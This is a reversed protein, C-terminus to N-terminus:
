RAQRGRPLRRAWETVAAGLPFLKGFFFHDAGEITVADLWPRAATFRAFDDPPCYSIELARSSWLQCGRTRSSIRFRGDCPAPRDAGHRRDPWRARRGARRHALRVLLRRDRARWRRNGEGSRRAGGRRRGAGGRWRRSSRRVRRGGSFQIALDRPWARRLGGPCPRRGSEGHRGRVAPAPHCIVVGAAPSEPLALLAELNLDAGVTVTVPQEPIM